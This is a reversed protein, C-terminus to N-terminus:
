EDWVYFIVMITKTDGANSITIDLKGDIVPVPDDLEVFTGSTSNSLNAGQGKLIDSFTGSVTTGSSDKAKYTVGVTMDWLDTTGSEPIVLFSSVIGSIFQTDVGSVSGSSDTTCVATYAKMRRGAYTWKVSGDAFADVAFCVVILLIGIFKRMIGEDALSEGLM